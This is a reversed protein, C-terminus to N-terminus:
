RALRAVDAPSELWHDPGAKELTPRPFPGWLAAATAVGAANGAAVDHPSDGIFLTRHPDVDLQELAFLVPAPDPKHKEVDDAAVRVTFLDDLGCVWLGRQLGYRMKSTVIGLKVGRSKLHEVTTRTEPFPRIMADHHAFNFDRYTAVMDELDDEEQVFPRLQERLPTGLGQLWVTDSPATGRHEMLTHRYSAFILGISDILTGDLDYLCADFQPM